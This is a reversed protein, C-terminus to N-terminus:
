ATRRRVATLGALALGLLGLSGPAPLAVPGEVNGVNDVVTGAQAGTNKIGRGAFSTRTIMNSLSQASFGMFELPGGIEPGNIYTFTLNVISPNDPPAVPNVQNPTMGVNQVSCAWGTPAACTGDIYDAFDFITFFSGSGSTHSVPTSSPQPGPKIKQDETLQMEYNWTYAGPGGTISDLTPILDAQAAAPAMALFGFLAFKKM